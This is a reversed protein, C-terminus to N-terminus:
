RLADWNAKKYQELVVLDDTGGANKKIIAYCKACVRLDYAHKQASKWRTLRIDDRDCMPCSVNRFRFDDIKIQGHEQLSM